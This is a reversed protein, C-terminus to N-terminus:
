IDTILRNAPSTEVAQAMQQLSNSLSKIEETEVMPLKNVGNSEMADTVFTITWRHIDSAPQYTPEAYKDKQVDTVLGSAVLNKLIRQVLPIPIQLKQAIMSASYPKRGNAFRRALLHTVQLSLLRMFYPSIKLLDPEFEYMDVNQHAFSIEAGFLLITWGLHLWILLLPLAALSGYIPNQVTVSIQFHIYLFQTIIYCTGAIVGALLGSQWRVRTNPIILYIFTFIIVFLGYPLLKVMNAFLPSLHGFIAIKQSIFVLQTTIFVPVSSAVILLIPAILIFSLYNSLKRRWSRERTIEWIQNISQEIHHLVKIVSYFLIIVGIGAIVSGRTNELLAQGWQIVQEVFTQQGPFNKILQTQLFSQLGFGKAIGFVMAVVPGVSLLTYFTLASARLLCNDRIFGRLSLIIIRMIRIYLARVGTLDRLPIRWIDESIYRILKEIM